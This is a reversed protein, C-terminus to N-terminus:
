AGLVSGNLTRLGRAFAAADVPSRGEAQVVRLALSGDGAAVTVVGDDVSVLGPAGRSASSAVVAERIVLRRGSLTTWAGPWDHMARVHRDIEVAPRHWNIAGDAKTVLRCWTAQTDDQPVPTLEGRLYDPLVELLLSAGEAALVPSLSATTDSQGLLRARTALVPGTDMGADLRMISVGTEADGAQIAAGIPWAGRWRPLVSGHVNLCGRPFAELLEVPLIRGYAVVIGVDANLSTIADLTTLRRLAVPQRVAVGRATALAKVPTPNVAQSRGVPRDPQSVALVVDVPSDPSLLSALVTAAFDPTGFFVARQRPLHAAEPHSQTPPHETV